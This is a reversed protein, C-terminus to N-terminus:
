VFSYQSYTLSPLHNSPTLMPPKYTKILLSFLIVPVSSLIESVGAIAPPITINVSYFVGAALLIGFLNYFFAWAFNFQIHRFVRKSLDIAVVVDHLNSKMLVVSAAEMAIDTGAGIGIGVDAQSLAPSDNVGDGVMAVIKGQSQLQSVKAAKDAPLVGAMVNSIGLQSAIAEATKANDGTIMWVDIGMEKLKRVVLSAEPRPIDILSFLGV